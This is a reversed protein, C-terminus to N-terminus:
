LEGNLTWLNLQLWALGVHHADTGVVATQLRVIRGLNCHLCTGLLHVDDVCLGERTLAIALPEDSRYLVLHDRKVCRRLLRGDHHAGVGMDGKATRAVDAAHSRQVLSTLARQGNGAVLVVFPCRHEMLADVLERRQLVTALGAAQAHALLKGLVPHHITADIAVGAARRGRVTRGLQIAVALQVDRLATGHDGHVTGELSLAVQGDAAGACQGHVVRSEKLEVAVQHQLAALQFQSRLVHRAGADAACRAQHHCSACECRDTLVLRAHAIVEGDDSLGTRGRGHVEVQPVGVFTGDAACTREDPIDM